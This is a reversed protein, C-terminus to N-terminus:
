AETTDKRPLTFSFISGKGVHSEVTIVGGHAEVISKCIALGLGTSREGGTPKVSTKSFPKFLLPLEEAPIGLGQDEVTITIADEEIWYSVTTTTDNKSYKIANTILNAIVQELKSPDCNVLTNSEDNTQFLLSISKKEALFSNYEIQDTILEQLNSKFCDLKLHGSEHSVVELLEDILHAM